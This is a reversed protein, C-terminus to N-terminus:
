VGECECVRCVIFSMMEEFEGVYAGCQRGQLDAPRNACHVRKTFYIRTLKNVM